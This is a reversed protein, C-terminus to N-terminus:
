ISFLISKVCIKVKGFILYRGDQTSFMYSSYDNVNQVRIRIFSVLSYYKSSRSVLVVYRVEFM